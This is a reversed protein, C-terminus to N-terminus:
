PGTTNEQLFDGRRRDLDAEVRRHHGHDGDGEDRRLEPREARLDAPVGPEFAWFAWPRTGPSSDVLVRDRHLEYVAELVDDSEGNRPDPGITLALMRSLTLEDRRKAKRQRRPM